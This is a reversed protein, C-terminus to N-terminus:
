KLIGGLQGIQREQYIDIRTIKKPLLDYQCKHQLNTFSTIAVNQYTYRNQVFQVKMEVAPCYLFSNFFYLL